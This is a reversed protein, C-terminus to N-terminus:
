VRGEGKEQPPMPSIMWMEWRPFHECWWKSLRAKNGTEAVELILGLFERQHAQREADQMLREMERVSKAREWQNDGFLATDLLHNAGNPFTGRDNGLYDLYKECVLLTHSDSTKM